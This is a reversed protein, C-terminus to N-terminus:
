GRSAPTRCGRTKMAEPDIGLEAMFVEYGKAALYAEPKDEAHRLSKRYSSALFDKPNHTSIRMGYACWNIIGTAQDLIKPLYAERDPDPLYESSPNFVKALLYDKKVLEAPFFDPDEIFDKMAEHAKAAAHELDKRPIRKPGQIRRPM